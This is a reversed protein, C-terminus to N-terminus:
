KLKSKIEEFHKPLNLPDINNKLYGGFQREFREKDKKIIEAYKAIHTGNIRDKAPLINEGHPVKIGSDVIGAVAAYIRSGKVSSGLGIDLVAEGIKKEKAKKGLLFGTLYASPVNGKDAKWGYKELARSNASAIVRDGKENFEVIAANIGRISKRIVLRPKESRILAIRKKYNTMGRTKRKFPLSQIIKKKMKIM